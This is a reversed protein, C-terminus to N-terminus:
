SFKREFFWICPINLGAKNHRNGINKTCYKKCNLVQHGNISFIIKTSVCTVYTVLLNKAAHFFSLLASHMRVYM